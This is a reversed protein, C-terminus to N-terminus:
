ETDVDLWGSVAALGAREDNSGNWIVVGLQGNALAALPGAIVVAWGGDGPLGAANVSEEDATSFVGPGKSTLSAAEARGDAWYWMKLPQEESGLTGIADGGGLLVGAADPFEADPSGDGQWQLRIYVTEDAQQASAIATGIEGYARGAWTKKIYDNPQADLPVPALSVSETQLDSWAASGPNLLDDQASESRNIKM